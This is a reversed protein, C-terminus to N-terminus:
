AFAQIQHIQLLKQITYRAEDVRNKEHVYILATELLEGKEDLCVVKCGTRYGPDIALIRKAGLPASLLLQRLNEAFVHIAEEDAKAKLATRFETELSPQLLRRYGDTIAKRIHISSPSMGNIFLPEIIEQVGSEEPAISLRLFGELFGRLIALIRHSPIRHIPESYDFYDKYKIGDNEKDTLVSTKILAESEFYRRLKERVVADENIIEALIDRAGQLAEEITFVQDTLFEKAKTEPAEATQELLWLALPELGKERAISGKTKRKPKYPMYLDEVQSLTSAARIIASLAETLKGQEEISKIVAAKRDELEQLRNSEDLIQQIVVEDLAGTRDKRYRAIFPVTGGEAHLALVAEM